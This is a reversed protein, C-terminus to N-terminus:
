VSVGNDLLLEPAHRPEHRNIWKQQRNVTRGGIIRSMGEAMASAAARHNM